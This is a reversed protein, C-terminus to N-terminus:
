GESDLLSFSNNSTSVNFSKNPTQFQVPELTFDFSEDNDKSNNKENNSSSTTETTTPVVQINSELTDKSITLNLWSPLVYTNFSFYSDEDETIGQDFSTFTNQKSLNDFQRDLEDFWPSQNKSNPKNETNASEFKRNSIVAIHTFYIKWFKDDSMVLPVLKYRLEDLPKVLGLIKQVHRKQLKNMALSPNNLTHFPFDKFSEPYKSINSVYQILEDTIGLEKREKVDEETPLQSEEWGLKKTFYSFM